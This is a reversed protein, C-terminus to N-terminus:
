AALRRPGFLAEVCRSAFGWLRAIWSRPAPPPEFPVDEPLALAELCAHEATEYPRTSDPRESRQSIGPVFSPRSPRATELDVIPEPRPLAEDREEELELLIAPVDGDMAITVRSIRSTRGAEDRVATDLRLFPLTQMVVMGDARRRAIEATIPSGVGDVFLRTRETLVNM